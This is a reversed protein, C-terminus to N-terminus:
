KMPTNIMNIQYIKYHVQSQVEVVELAVMGMSKSWQNISSLMNYNM